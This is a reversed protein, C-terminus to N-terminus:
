EEKLEGCNKCVWATVKDMYQGCESCQSARHLDVESM